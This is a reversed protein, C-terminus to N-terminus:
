QTINGIVSASLMSNKTTLPRHFVHIIDNQRAM